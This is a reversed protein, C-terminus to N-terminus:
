AECISIRDMMNKPTLQHPVWVHLKKKFGVKRLHNLVTKHDIKLKQAISRSSVHWGIEIIDTIEAVTEVVPKGTRPADKVDCIGSRFRHFWIARLSRIKEKNVEM